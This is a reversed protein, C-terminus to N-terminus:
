TSQVQLDTESSCGRVLLVYLDESQVEVANEQPQNRMNMLQNTMPCQHRANCTHPETRPQKRKREPVTNNGRTRRTGAEPAMKNDSNRRRLEFIRERLKILIQFSIMRCTHTRTRTLTHRHPHKHERTRIKSTKKHKKSNSNMNTHPSANATTKM